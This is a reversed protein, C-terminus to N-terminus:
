GLSPWQTKPGEPSHLLWLSVHCHSVGSLSGPVPYRITHNFVFYVASHILYAQWVTSVSDILGVSGELQWSCSVSWRCLALLGSSPVDELVIVRNSFFAVATKSLSPVTVSLYLTLLFSAVHSTHKYGIWVFWSNFSMTERKLFKPWIWMVHFEDYDNQFTCNPLMWYLWPATCGDGGDLELINEDGWFSVEEGNLLQEGSGEERLRQCGRVLKRDRHSESNWINWLLPIVACIRKQTQTGESLM